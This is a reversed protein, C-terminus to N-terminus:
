PCKVQNRDNNQGYFGMNRVNRKIETGTKDTLNGKVAVKWIIFVMKIWLECMVFFWLVSCRM